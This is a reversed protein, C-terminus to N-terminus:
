AHKGGRWSEGKIQRIRGEKLRDAIRAPLDLTNTTLVMPRRHRYRYDVIMDLKAMSWPTDSQAGIDDIIVLGSTQLREMMRDYSGREYSARLNDFLEEAQRYLVREGIALFRWAIGFCLHTKGVGAPGYLLLFPGPIQRGGNTRWEQYETVFDKAAQLASRNGASPSFTDLNMTPEDEGILGADSIARERWLDYTGM